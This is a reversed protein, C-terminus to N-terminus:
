RGACASCRGHFVVDVSRVEFGDAQDDPLRVGRAVAADIDIIRGCEDCVLHHHPLANVDFLTPGRGARLERLEGMAALATLTNYVTALSVRGGARRVAAHVTEASAHGHEEDLVAVVAARQPTMPWGRTRLRRSLPGENVVNGPM